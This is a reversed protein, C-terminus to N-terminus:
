GTIGLVTLIIAILFVTLLARVPRNHKRLYAFCLMTLTLPLLGPLISDLIQQLNFETGGIKQSFTTTFTVFQATMAGTMILGLVTCGKTIANFSGSKMAKSIFAGGSKYGLVGGFWRILANPISAVILFLIPGLINGQQSLGLAVGTAVVRIVSLYVSDGIGALPGMLATKLASISTEDFPTGNDTALKNEEEMSITLAAIFNNMGTNTNYFDQHRAMAAYFADTGKGYINELFPEMVWSYTIGQQKTYSACFMLYNSRWFLKWLLKREKKDLKTSLVKTETPNTM